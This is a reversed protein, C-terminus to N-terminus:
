IVDRSNLRLNEILIISDLSSGYVKSLQKRLPTYDVTYRTQRRHYYAANLPLQNAEAYDKLKKFGKQMKVIWIVYYNKHLWKWTKNVSPNVTPLSWFLDQDM